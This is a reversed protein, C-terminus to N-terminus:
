AGARHRGQHGTLHGRRPRWRSRYTRLPPRLRRCEQCFRITRYPEREASPPALPPPLHTLRRSYPSAHPSICATAHRTHAPRSTTRVQDLGRAALDTTVLIHKRAAIFDDFNAARENAPIAGHYNATAFGEESLTHDIFRASQQSNCFLVLRGVLSPRGTEDAPGLLDRLAGMKADPGNCTLFNQRLQPPLSHSGDVMVSRAEGLWKRYLVRAGEPHTAGVALHQVCGMGNAAARPDASLDRTTVKLVADLEPGFGAEFMTDVEDLVVHRVDGLYLGNLGMLKVLRGPTAVLIDVPFSSLRKLQPGDPVGGHIVAVSLKVHHALKKAVDHVQLALERTPVLIIARPRRPKARAAGADEDAKIACMTPVLYTFTKGSGTQAGLILDMRGNIEPIAQAQLANPSSVGAAELAEVMEPRVNLDAFSTAASLVVTSTRSFRATPQVPPTLLLASVAALVYLM